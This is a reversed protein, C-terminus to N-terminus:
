SLCIRACQSRRPRLSRTTRFYHSMFLSVMNENRRIDSNWYFDTMQPLRWGRCRHYLYFLCFQGCTATGVNQWRNTNYNFRRGILYTKLFPYHHPHYGLSDFIEVFGNRSLFLAIWHQGPLHSPDTNIIYAGPSRIDHVKDSALVGLHPLASLYIDHRLAIELQHTEM